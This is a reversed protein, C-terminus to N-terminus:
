PENRRVVLAGLVVVVGVGTLPWSWARRTTVASDCAALTANAQSPDATGELAAAVYWGPGAAARNASGYNTRRDTRGHRGYGVGGMM